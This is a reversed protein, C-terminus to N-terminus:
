VFLVFSKMTGETQPVTSLFSSGYAGCCLPPQQVTMYFPRHSCPPLLSSAPALSFAVIPSSCPTRQRVFPKELMVGERRIGGRHADYDAIGESGATCSDGFPQMYYKTINKTYSYSKHRTVVETCLITDLPAGGEFLPSGRARVFYSSSAQVLQATQSRSIVQSYTIHGEGPIWYGDILYRDIAPVRIRHLKGRERGSRL